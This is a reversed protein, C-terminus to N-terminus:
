SRSGSVTVVVSKLLGRFWKSSLAQGALYVLTGVALHAALKPVDVWFHKITVEHVSFVTFYAAMLAASVTTAIVERLPLSFMMERLTMRYVIVLSVASTAAYAALFILPVLLFNSRVAYGIPASVAYAAATSGLTLVPVKFLYSRLLHKHSGLGDVDALDSGTLASGYIGFLANILSYLAVIVILVSASMYQPNYLSAIPKSLVSFVVVMYGGTLLLLRMSEEVDSARRERLMRAYLASAVSGSAQVPAEASLAVNLYAVPVESGTVWSVIVRLASRLFGNIIGIAPVYSAKLWERVLDLSFRTNVAGHQRLVYTCYAISVLLALMVALVAGLYRLGVIVVAVYAAALRLTEYVLRKYGILEPKIVVSFATLYSDLAVLLPIPLALLLETLGWGIVSSEFYALGVYMLSLPIFYMITLILGTGSAEVKGRVYYRRSWYSWISVPASLMLSASLMIGWLGFESVPLRRAVVVVFGVAVLMRYIMSAYNILAAYRLRIRPTSVEVGVRM